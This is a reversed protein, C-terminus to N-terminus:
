IVNPSINLILTALIKPIINAMKMERLPRAMRKALECIAKLQIAKVRGIGKIQILETISVDQLFRLNTGNEQKLNLIKQYLFYFVLSRLYKTLPLLDRMRLALLRM